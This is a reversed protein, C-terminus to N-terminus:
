AFEWNGNRRETNRLETYHRAMCTARPSLRPGQSITTGTPMPPIPSTNLSLSAIITTESQCAPNFFHNQCGASFESGVFDKRWNAGAPHAFDPFRSVRPEVPNNRDLPQTGFVGLSEFPLGFGDGGEIM